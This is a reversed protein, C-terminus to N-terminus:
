VHSVFSRRFSGQTIWLVCPTSAALTIKSLFDAVQSLGVATSRMSSGYSIVRLVFRDIRYPLLLFVVACGAVTYALSSMPASVRVLCRWWFFVFRRCGVTCCVGHVAKNWVGIGRSGTPAAALGSTPVRRTHNCPLLSSILPPTQGLFGPLMATWPIFGPWMTKTPKAGTRDATSLLSVRAIPKTM